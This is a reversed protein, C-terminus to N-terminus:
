RAFAVRQGGVAFGIAVADQRGAALGPPELLRAQHMAIQAAAVHDAAGGVTERPDDIRHRRDAATVNFTPSVAPSLSSRGFMKVPLLHPSILPM